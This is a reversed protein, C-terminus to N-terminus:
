ANFIVSNQQVACFRYNKNRDIGSPIFDNKISCFDHFFVNWKQASNQNMTCLFDQVIKKINQAPTIM